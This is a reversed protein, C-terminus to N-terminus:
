VLNVSRFAVDRSGGRSTCGTIYPEVYLAGFSWASCFVTHHYFVVYPRQLELDALTDTCDSRLAVSDTSYAQM